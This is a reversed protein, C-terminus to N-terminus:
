PCGIYGKKITECIATLSVGLGHLSILGSEKDHSLINKQFGRFGEHGEWSSHVSCFALGFVVIRLLWM